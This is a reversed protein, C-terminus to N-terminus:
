FHVIEKLKDFYDEDEGYLVEINDKDLIKKLIKYKKSTEFKNQLFKSLCFIYHVKVKSDKISEEFVIEYEKKLSPASWLKTEVSGDVCQEKKEIIYINLCDNNKVIFSEDPFRFLEIDYFKKFYTKLGSQLMFAYYTENENKELYYGFKTKNLTKKEYGALKNEVNTVEEFNKGKLNTNKGGAGTGKNIKKEELSLNNFIAEIEDCM